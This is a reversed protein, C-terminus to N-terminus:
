YNSTSIGGNEYGGNYRDMIVAMDGSERPGFEILWLRGGGRGRTRKGGWGFGTVVNVDGGM